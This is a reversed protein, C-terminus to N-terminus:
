YINKRLYVGQSMMMSHGYPDAMIPELQVRASDSKGDFVQALAAVQMDDLTGVGATTIRAVDEKKLPGDGGALLKFARTVGQTQDEEASCHLLCALFDFLRVDDADPQNPDAVAFLQYFLAKLGDKRAEDLKTNSEFWLKVSKFEDMTVRSDVDADAATYAKRMELIEATSPYNPVAATVLFERWSISGTEALDLQGALKELRATLVDEDTSMWELPLPGLGDAVLRRLLWVFDECTIKGWPATNLLHEHLLTLQTLTFRDPLPETEATEEIRESEYPVLRTGEDIQFETDELTIDHVLVEEGEIAERVQAAFGTSSAVEATFRAELWTEMNTGLTEGRQHLGKIILSGRDAISKLRQQTLAVEKELEEKLPHEELGEANVLALAGELCQTLSEKLSDLPPQAAAQQGEEAPQRPPPGEGPPTLAESLSLSIDLVESAPPLERETRFKYEAELMGRAGQYRMLELSMLQALSTTAIACKDQLWGCGLLEYREENASDKRQDSVDWLQELLEECRLHLEQKVEVDSRMWEEIANFGDHFRQAVLQREDPRRIYEVFNDRVGAFHPVAERRCRRLQSFVEKAGSKYRTEVEVWQSLLLESLQLEQVGEKIEDPLPAASTPEALYSLAEAPKASLNEKKKEEFAELLSTVLADGVALVEPSSLEGDVLEVVGFRELFEEMPPAALASQAIRPGIHLDASSDNEEPALRGYSGKGMTPPDSALHYRTGEDIDVVRGHAREEATSKEIKLNLIAKLGSKPAPPAEVPTDADSPTGGLSALESKLGTQPGDETSKYGTLASELLQAQALTSPFGDLAYGKCDGTETALNQIASVVLEVVTMDDVGQGSALQQFAREGLELERGVIEKSEIMAERYGDVCAKVVGDPCITRIGKDKLSACLETKGSFPMGIVSIAVPFEPMDPVDSLPEVPTIRADLKKVLDCLPATQVGEPPPRSESPLLETPEAGPETYAWPGSWSVYRSWESEDLQPQESVRVPDHKDAEAEAAKAEEVPDPEADPPPWVAEGHVWQVTWEALEEVPWEGDTDATHLSVRAVLDLVGDMVELCEEYLCDQEKQAEAAEYEDRRRVTEEVRRQYEEYAAQRAGREAEAKLEKDRAEAAAEQRSRFKRNEKLIDKHLQCEWLSEAVKREEKSQRCLKELLMEEKRRAELEKQASQQDLLVKRRRRDREKRSIDEEAKKKKISRIYGDASQGMEEFPPLSREINKMHELTSTPAASLREKVAEDPIDETEAKGLRRLTTEFEDISDEVDIRAGDQKLVGRRSRNERTALEYSMCRKIEERRAKMNEGHQSAGQSQWEMMFQKNQHYKDRMGQRREVQAMKAYEREDASIMANEGAIVTAHDAFPKLHLALKQEYSNPVMKRLKDDLRQQEIDEYRTKGMSKAGSLYSVSTAQKATDGLKYNTISTSASFANTQLSQLAQKV